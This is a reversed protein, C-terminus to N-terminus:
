DIQDEVNDDSPQDVRGTVARSRKKDRAAVYGLEPMLRLSKELEGPHMTLRDLSQPLIRDRM